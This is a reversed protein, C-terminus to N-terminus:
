GRYYVGGAVLEGKKLTLLQSVTVLQYGKKQLDPIAREMADATTKHIDHCLIICGDSVSNMISNYVANANRTKWDLTDVSWTVVAENCGYATYKVADSYAGYPPRILRPEVGTIDKIIKHTVSIEKQVKELSLRSLDPHSWSHSAIEHGENVIRKAVLKNNELRNGVVFFTGKGGYKKFATLLRPTHEGPGDDFTIAIMPKQPDIGELSIDDTNITVREKTQPVTTTPKRTTTVRSTSIQKKTTTIIIKTTTEETTTETTEETTVEETTTEKETHLSTTSESVSSTEEAPIPGDFACGNFCIVFVFFLVFSKVIRKM